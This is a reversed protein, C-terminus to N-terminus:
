RQFPYTPLVSRKREFDRDFGQWDIKVGHLYLEALSTLLAQWDEKKPRLSPLWLGSYDSPLCQRGMGLLTPKPGIEIFIEVGQQALSQMSAAFKVPQLIHQCWYDATTIADKIVEGTVNSIVPILPSSFTVQQTIQKFESIIPKMLPSHFAHSVLLKKTKIGQNELTQCITQIAEREGSIVVSE